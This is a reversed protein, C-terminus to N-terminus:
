GIQESHAAQASHQAADLAACLVAPRRSSVLWTPTPDAPDTVEAEVAQPIWARLCAFARADSGPGVADHVGQQDLVRAPGLDAVPIHARGARLEGGRVEVLASTRVAIVVGAVATVAAVVVAVTPDVPLVAIFAFAAFGLVFAWGLLGPWLRERYTAPPSVREISM